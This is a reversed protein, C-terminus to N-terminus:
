IIQNRTAWVAAQTRDNVNLKNFIHIIHSKVTHPSIHLRESIEPNSAGEAVHRLVEIERTTLDTQISIGNPDLLPPNTTNPGQAPHSDSVKERPGSVPDGPVPADRSDIAFTSTLTGEPGFVPYIAYVALPSAFEPCAQPETEGKRLAAAFAMCTSFGCKKCNTRPLTKIIDVISVPERHLRHDPELQNRRDYLDNLFEILEEIYTITNERSSFPAAMAERPYLTCQVGRRNFAISLPRQQYRAKAVAANVFPFVDRIDSDFKFHAGWKLDCVFDNRIGTRSVSLDSYGQILM